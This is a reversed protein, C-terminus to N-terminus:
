GERWCTWARAPDGIARDPYPATFLDYVVAEPHRPDPGVSQWFDVAYAADPMATLRLGGTRPPRDPGARHLPRSELRARRRAHHRCGNASTGHVRPNGAPVAECRLPSRRVVPRALLGRQAPHVGGPCRPRRAGGCRDRRGSRGLHRQGRVRRSEAGTRTLPALRRPGAADIVPSIGWLRDRVVSVYPAQREEGPPYAGARLVAGTSRNAGQDDYALAFVNYAGAPLDPGSSTYPATTDTGLQVTGPPYGWGFFEVRSIRRGPAPTAAAEVTITAPAFLPDGGVPRTLRVVPRNPDPGPSPSLTPSPMGPAAAPDSNAHGRAAARDRLHRRQPHLGTARHRPPSRADHHVSLVDAPRGAVRCRAPWPGHGARRAAGLARRRRKQAARQPTRLQFRLTRDGLPQGVSLVTLDGRSMSPPTSSVLSCRWWAGMPPPRRYCLPSHVSAAALAVTALCIVRNRM